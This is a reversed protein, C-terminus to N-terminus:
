RTLEWVTMHSVGAPTALARTSWGSKRLRIVENEWDQQAKHKRRTFERLAAFEEIEMTYRWDKSSDMVFPASGNRLGCLM